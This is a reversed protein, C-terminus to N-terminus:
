ITRYAAHIFAEHGEIMNQPLNLPKFLSDEKPPLTLNTKYILATEMGRKVKRLQAEIFVTGEPKYQSLAGAIVRNISDEFSGAKDSAM